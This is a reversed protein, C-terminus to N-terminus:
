NLRIQLRVKPKETLWAQIQLLKQKDGSDQGPAKLELISLARQVHASANRDDNLAYAVEALNTLTRILRLHKTGVLNEEISLAQQYYDYAESLNGVTEYYTGLNNLDTAIELNLAGYLKKDILFAQRLCRYARDTDGTKLLTLGFNCLRTSNNPSPSLQEIPTSGLLAEYIPVAKEPENTARYLSALQSRIAHIAGCTPGKFATYIRIAEEYHGRALEYSGLATEINAKIMLLDAWNPQLINQDVYVEKAIGYAHDILEKAKQIDELLFNTHALYMIYSALSVSKGKAFDQMEIHVAAGILDKAKDLRRLALFTLGLRCSALATKLDEEGHLNVFIRLAFDLAEHSASFDGLALLIRGLQVLVDGVEDSIAGYLNKSYKFALRWCDSAAKEQNVGEYSIALLKLTWITDAHNTGLSKIQETLNTRAKEITDLGVRQKEEWQKIPDDRVGTFPYYTDIM